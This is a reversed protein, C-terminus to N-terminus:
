KFKGMFTIDDVAIYGDILFSRSGEITVYFDSRYRGINISIQRWQNFTEDSIKSVRYRQSGINSYVEISGINKGKLCGM